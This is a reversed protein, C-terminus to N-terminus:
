NSEYLDAVIYMASNLLWMRMLSVVWSEIRISYKALPIGIQSMHWMCLILGGLIMLSHYLLALWKLVWHCIVSSSVLEDISSVM